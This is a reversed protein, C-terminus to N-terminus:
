QASVVEWAEVSNSVRAWQGAWELSFRIEAPTLKAAPGTKVELIFNRGRHGVLLDGMGAGISSMDMVSCGRARLERVIEAQNADTRGRKRM